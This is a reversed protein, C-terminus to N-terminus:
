GVKFLGYLAFGVLSGVAATFLDMQGDLKWKTMDWGRWWDRAPLKAAIEHDRRERGLFYGIAAIFGTTEAPLWSFAFCIIVGAVFHVAWTQTQTM